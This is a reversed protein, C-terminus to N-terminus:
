KYDECKWETSGLVVVCVVRGIDPFDRSYAFRLTGSYEDLRLSPEDPLKEIFKPTLEYLSNPYRGREQKFQELAALVKNAPERFTMGRPEDGPPVSACAGLLLVAFVGALSSRKM